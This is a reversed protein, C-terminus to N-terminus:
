GCYYFDLADIEGLVCVWSDGYKPTWEVFEALGYSFVVWVSIRDDQISSKTDSETTKKLTSDAQEIQLKSNGAFAFTEMLMFALM